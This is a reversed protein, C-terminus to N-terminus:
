CGGLEWPECNAWESVDVKAYSLKAELALIRQEASIILKRNNEPHIDKIEDLTLTDTLNM